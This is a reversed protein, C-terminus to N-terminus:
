RRGILAQEFVVLYQEAILPWHYRQELKQLNQRIQAEQAPGREFHDLANAVDTPDLFYAADEGLVEQNFPNRHALIPAACAMAELLSPNTGGVSHGHLYLHCYHRLANLKDKRYSAKVFRIRPDKFRAKLKQGYPSEHDGIVLTPRSSESAEVGELLCALNNEPELRAIILHYGGAQLNYRELFHAEPPETLPEAGYPLYVIQSRYQKQLYQQIALADAILLHSAAVAQKEAWRLYSKVRASYKSRQWELGDMNTILVSHAPLLNLWPSSSTYGLMLVIDFGRKRADWICNFDYIWQGASGMRHEPDYKHIIEVGRWQKEAYPHRHSNYVSVQHGAERWRWSLQQACEEFGGYYNPIGRSGLIAIKM